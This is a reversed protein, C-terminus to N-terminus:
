FRPLVVEALHFDHLEVADYLFRTHARNVEFPDLQKAPQTQIRVLTSTETATARALSICAEMVTASGSFRSGLFFHTLVHGDDDLCLLFANDSSEFDYSPTNAVLTRWFNPGLHAISNEM